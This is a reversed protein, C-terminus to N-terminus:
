IIICIMGGNSDNVIKQMSDMINQQCSDDIQQLKTRMGEELLEGVSKGFINANWLGEEQMRSDDIYSILDMAQEESGVIPAIETEINTRIMHVSPAMAHMKVGFKNGHSIIQPEDVVFDQLEPLVVGYGKQEVADLADKLKAYERKTKSLEQIMTILECEGEIPVQAMESIYSYYFSEDMELKLNVTGDSPEMSLLYISSIITENKEDKENKWEFVQSMKSFRTQIQRATQILAEKVPHNLALTQTWKPVYYNVQGVPFELLITQLIETIDDKKLQMCNVALVPYGYQERMHAQLKIAEESYPKECNLLIVFPKKSNEMEHVAKAEAELYNERPIDGFSGDTTVLVGVTAHDQIVKNTGYEAAESFPVDEDFWPTHVMRTNDGEMHGSAGNVMFGVCDVLRVKLKCGKEVEIEAAEQPIFKPETTMVMTGQASQPLEDIARSQKDPNDMFPLVFLEMFRKIFTSKGTRVPGFVGIYIEGKTRKQIDKYLDFEM